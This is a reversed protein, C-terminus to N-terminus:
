SRFWRRLRQWLSRPVPPPGEPQLEITEYEGTDEVDARQRLSTALGALATAVAQAVEDGPRCMERLHQARSAYLKAQKEAMDAALLLGALM